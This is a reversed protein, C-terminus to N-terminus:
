AALHATVAAIEKSSKRIYSKFAASKWRGLHQILSDSLGVSAATTAAGIRFSHGSFGATNIGAKSLASRLHTILQRRSLPSGDQFVFLPGPKMPRVALYALIAAVPCLYDGTRGLHIHTGESFQDTKSRRLHITLVQPNTRSDVSVDSISVSAVHEGDQITSTFEGSRMFAFFGMCFAAWLMTRNFTIPPQSWACYIRRLHDPTLPLRHNPNPTHSSKRIGKLM